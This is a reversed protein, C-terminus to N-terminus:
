KKSIRLSNKDLEVKATDGASLKNEILLMAIEDLIETEILRKLPRAGFVPDYGKQALYSKANDSVEIKVDQDSLRATVKALQLDVIKGLQEKSLSDFMIIQDLRNIFEPPFTAQIKEWVEKNLQKQLGEPKAPNDAYKRIIEGGLNSTMILVTNRFDVTRGKGDTLRGADFIQLFITFIMQHAKEIEDFLIVAYPKRRVAETLQGGEEYGVYGPPAGILRSVSHRETYESMDIRILANVDDFLVQSLARATETKGVGTPGLFMMAAIPRNEEAVGARSRRIAGSVAKLAEKQGVVMSALEAELNILKDKESKVLRTVPISTWRSVVQAIDDETVEERLIREEQPITAWQAEVEKLKKKVDPIKGYKVEAASELRVEKEAKELELRLRDLQERYERVKKILQKQKGWREEFQSEEQKLKKIEEELHTRKEKAGAGSERKLAALEIQLQTIKRKLSDLQAPSSESDIKLSSAAEDILDIAKDPLFRDTIYRSSLKAASIIADDTIRLGHHLEYKEKLGRLIAITDEVNPENVVVPQFRRELAADAEIYKRYEDLTTAGIVRLTGRALGPKLMNSADVAGQAGGAGVVTHLEDIFLVYRGEGKEVAKILAKLREEFEGRFKSGALLSAIDLMLVQKDKLSEPVDGQAIRQALGEALATKGVGPDGILVPNNKTRRSLVQMIRRIEMDRGIVPDLKKDKALLTLDTTFKELAEQPEIPQLFDPVQQM